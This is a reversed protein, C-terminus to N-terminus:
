EKELQKDGAKELADESELETYEFMRQSSTMMQQVEAYMRVTISLMAMLEIVIQLTITLYESEMTGKMYVSLVTTVSVFIGSIMDFRVGMWRSSM